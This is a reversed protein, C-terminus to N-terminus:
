LFNAELLLKEGVGAFLFIAETQNPKMWLFLFERDSFVQTEEILSDRQVLYLYSNIYTLNIYITLTPTVRKLFSRHQKKGGAWAQKLCLRIRSSDESLTKKEDPDESLKMHSDESQFCSNTTPRTPATPTHPPGAPLLEVDPFPSFFLQSFVCLRSGPFASVQRALGTAWHVNPKCNAKHLHINKLHSLQQVPVVAESMKAENLLIHRSSWHPDSRAASGASLTSQQKQSGVRQAERSTIAHRFM